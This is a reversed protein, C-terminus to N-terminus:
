DGRQQHIHIGVLRRRQEATWRVTLRYTSRELRMIGPTMGMKDFAVAIPSLDDFSSDAVETSYLGDSDPQALIAKAVLQITPTTM